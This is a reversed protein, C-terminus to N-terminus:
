QQVTEPSVIYVEAGDPAPSKDMAFAATSLMVAACAGQIIKKSLGM